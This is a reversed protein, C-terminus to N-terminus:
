EASKLSYIQHGNHGEVVLADVQGTRIAEITEKAEYLQHRVEDLEQQLNKLLSNEADM